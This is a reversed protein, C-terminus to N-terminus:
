KKFFQLLWMILAAAGASIVSAIGAVVSTRVTKVIEADKKMPQLELENIKKIAAEIKDRGVM